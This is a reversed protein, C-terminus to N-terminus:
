ELDLRRRMLFDAMALDEPVTVKLNERSGEVIHVRKGLHEFLMAEDTIGAHTASACADLLVDRQFAQPTQASWIASRDITEVVDCDADIRKLTDTVPSAIIAAGCDFAAAASREIDDITLLPRAADHIVAVDIEVALSAVGRYVSESRSDGGEVIATVKSWWGAAVLVRIEDITHAGAVIVVDRIVTSREFADLSWALIPRGAVLALVKSTQGFREGRGAAVIVGGAIM